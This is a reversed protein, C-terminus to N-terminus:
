ILLFLSVMARSGDQPRMASMAFGAAWFPRPAQAATSAALRSRARTPSSPKWSSSVSRGRWAVASAAERSGDTPVTTARPPSPRMLSTAAPRM